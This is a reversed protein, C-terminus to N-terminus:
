IDETTKKGEAPPSADRNPGELTPSTDAADKSNEGDVKTETEVGFESENGTNEDKVDPFDPKTPAVLDTTPTQTDTNKEPFLLTSRPSKNLIISKGHYELPLDQDDKLQRDSTELVSKEATSEDSAVTPTEILRSEGLGIITSEAYSSDSDAISRGGYNLIETPTGVVLGNADVPVKMYVTRPTHKIADVEVQRWRKVPVKVEETVTKWECVQEEYPEVREVTQYETEIVPVKRVVEQDVYTTETYPVRETRIVTKPKRVEVPVKRTEIRKETRQVQVPVKRLEIQERYRTVEVPTETKVIEPVLRTTEIQQPILTPVLDAPQPVSSPVWRLGGRQFQYQGTYPNIYYGSNLRQLRQRVLDPRQVLTTPPAWYSQSSTVPKYVTHNEVRILRETVPKRVIVKEERMETEVIPKEVIVREERMETVTEYVTEEYTRERYKTETVPKKVTYREERTSTKHIPKLVTTRREKTETTWVPKYTTQRRTEYVTDYSWRKVKVPTREYTTQPVVKYTVCDEQGIVAQGYANTALGSTLLLMLINFRRM